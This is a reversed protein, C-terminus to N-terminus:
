CWSDRAAQAFGLVVKRPQKPGAENCIPSINVLCEPVRRAAVGSTVEFHCIRSPNLESPFSSVGHPPRLNGLAFSRRRLKTPFKALSRKFAAIIPGSTSKM